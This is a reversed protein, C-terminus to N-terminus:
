PREARDDLDDFFDASLRVVEVLREESRVGLQHDKLLDCLADGDILDIPTAGDRSAERRADATFSGTTILLGKDGRGQMAGRFDRIAPAGVSGSYRKCQFFVPFTLLSLRYVGMGDIGGDGSRRTVTVRSFGAERLLRQALLEFAYPHLATLRDLLQGKWASEEAEESVATGPEFALEDPEVPSPTLPKDTREARAAQTTTSRTRAKNVYERHLEALDGREAAQGLETVAWFGRRPNDLLGMGKLYSRAWSLRDLLLTQPGDGKLVRQQEDTFQEHDIVEAEIDGKGASGGLRLVAQLTPWMLQDYTPVDEDVANSGARSSPAPVIGESTHPPRTEPAAATALRYQGGGLFEVVGEDRLNQLAKQASMELSQNAPFAAEFAPMSRRLWEQRSFTQGVRWNRRIEELIVERWRVTTM